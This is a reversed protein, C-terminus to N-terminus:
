VSKLLARIAGRWINMLGTNRATHQEVYRALGALTETTERLERIVRFDQLEEMDVREIVERSCVHTMAMNQIVLADARKSPQVVCRTRLLDDYQEHMEEECNERSQITAGATFYRLQDVPKPLLNMLAIDEPDNGRRRPYDWAEPCIRFLLGAMRSRLETVAYGSLHLTKTSLDQRERRPLSFFYPVVGRTSLTETLGAM